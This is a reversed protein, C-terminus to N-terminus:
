IPRFSPGAGNFMKKWGKHKKKPAIGVLQSSRNMRAPPAEEEDVAFKVKSEVQEAVDDVEDDSDDDSDSDHTQVAAAAESATKGKVVAQLAANQQRKYEEVAPSELTQFFSPIQLHLLFVPYLHCFYSSANVLCTTYIGQWVLMVHQRSVMGRDGKELAAKLTHMMSMASTPNACVIINGCNALRGLSDIQLWFTFM